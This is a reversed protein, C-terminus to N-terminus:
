GRSRSLLRVHSDLRELIPRRGKELANYYERTIKLAKAMEGQTLGLRIRIRRLGSGTM